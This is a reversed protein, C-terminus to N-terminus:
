SGFFATNADCFIISLSLTKAMTPGSPNASRAQRAPCRNSAPTNCSNGSVAGFEGELESGAFGCSRSFNLLQQGIDLAGTGREFVHHFRLIELLGAQHM